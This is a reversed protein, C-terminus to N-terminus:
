DDDSDDDRDATVEGSNLGVRWDRGDDSGGSARTEAEWGREGDEDLEVSTM